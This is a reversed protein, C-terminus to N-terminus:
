RTYQAHIMGKSAKCIDAIFKAARRMVRRPTRTTFKTFQGNIISMFGRSERLCWDRSLQAIRKITKKVYGGLDFLSVSEQKLLSNDLLERFEEVDNSDEPFNFPSEESESIIMKYGNDYWCLNQITVDRFVFVDNIPNYYIGERPTHISYWSHDKDEALVPLSAPCSNSECPTCYSEVGEYLETVPEQEEPTVCMNRVYGMLWQSATQLNTFKNNEVTYGKNEKILELGLQQFESAVQNYSLRPM